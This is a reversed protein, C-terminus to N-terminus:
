ALRGHQRAYEDRQLPREGAENRQRTVSAPHRRDLEPDSRRHKQAM